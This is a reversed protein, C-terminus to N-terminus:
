FNTKMSWILQEQAEGQSMGYMFKTSQKRRTTSGLTRRCESRANAGQSFPTIHHVHEAPTVIGKALCEECLPHERIYSNRLSHWLKSGYYKSWDIQNNNTNISKKSNTKKYTHLYKRNLIAM